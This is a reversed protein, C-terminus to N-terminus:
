IIRAIHSALFVVLIFQPFEPLREGLSAQLRLRLLAKLRDEQGFFRQAPLPVTV